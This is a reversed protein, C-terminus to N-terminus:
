LIGLELLFQCTLIMICYSAEMISNFKKTVPSVTYYFTDTSQNQSMRRNLDHSNHRPVALVNVTKFIFSSQIM